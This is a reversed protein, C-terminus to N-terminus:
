TFNFDGGIAPTDVYIHFCTPTAKHGTDHVQATLYNSIASKYYELPGRNDDIHEYNYHIVIFAM